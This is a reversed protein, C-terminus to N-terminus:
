IKFKKNKNNTNKEIENSKNLIVNTNENIKKGNKINKSKIIENKL